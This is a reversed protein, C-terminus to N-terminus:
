AREQAEELEMENEFIQQQLAHEDDSPEVSLAKRRQAHRKLANKAPRPVRAALAAEIRARDKAVQKGRENLLALAKAWFQIRHEADQAEAKTIGGLYAIHRQTPKGNIRTNQVLIAAWHESRRHQTRKRNQWRLYMARC